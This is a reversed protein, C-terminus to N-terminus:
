SSVDICDQNMKATLVFDYNSEFLLFEVLGIISNLTIRLAQMTTKSCFHPQTCCCGEPHDEPDESEDTASADETEDLALLFEEM